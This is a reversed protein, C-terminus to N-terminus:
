GQRSNKQQVTPVEIERPQQLGTGEAEAIYEWSLSYYERRNVNYALCNLKDESPTVNEPHNCMDHRNEYANEIDDGAELKSEYQASRDKDLNEIDATFEHDKQDENGHGFMNLLVDLRQPDPTTHWSGLVAYPASALEGRDSLNIKNVEIVVDKLDAMNSRETAKSSTEDTDTERAKAVYAVSIRKSDTQKFRIRMVKISDEDVDKRDDVTPLREPDELDM